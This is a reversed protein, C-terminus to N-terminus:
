FLRAFRLIGDSARGHGISRWTLKMFTTFRWRWISWRSMPKMVGLTIVLILILIPCHSHNVAGFRICFLLITVRFKCHYWAVYNICKQWQFPVFRSASAVGIQKWVALRLTRLTIGYWVMRWIIQITNFHGHRTWTQTEFTMNRKLLNPGMCDWELTPKDSGLRLVTSSGEWSWSPIDERGGCEVPCRTGAGEGEGAWGETKCGSVVNWKWQVAPRKGIKWAPPVTACNAYLCGIKLGCLDM